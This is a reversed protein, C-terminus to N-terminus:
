AKANLRKKVETVADRFPRRKGAHSQEEAEDLKEYLDILARQQEFLQQSMVVLHGSGNKTIFVPQQEKICIEEIEPTKNRLDSVPRIIPM